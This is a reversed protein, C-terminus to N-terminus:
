ISYPITFGLLAGFGNTYLVNGELETMSILPASLMKFQSWLKMHGLYQSNTADGNFSSLLTNTDTHTKSFLPSFSLGTQIAGSVNGLAQTTKLM